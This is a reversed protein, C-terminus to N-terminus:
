AIVQSSPYLEKQYGTNYNNRDLLHAIYSKSYEVEIATGFKRVEYSNAEKVCYKSAGDVWKHFPRIRAFSDFKRKWYAELASTHHHQISNRKKLNRVLFHFHPRGFKEGGEARLVWQAKKFPTGDLEFVRRLMCFATKKRRGGGVRTDYPDIFDDNYTLTGFLDWNDQGIHYFDPNM